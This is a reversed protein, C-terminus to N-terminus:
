DDQGHDTYGGERAWLVTYKRPREVALTGIWRVHPAGDSPLIEFRGALPPEVVPRRAEDILLANAFRTTRLAVLALATQEYMDQSAPWIMRTMPSQKMILEEFADIEIMAQELPLSFMADLEADLKEMEVVPTLFLDDLKAALEWSMEDGASSGLGLEGVVELLHERAGQLDRTHRNELELFCPEIRELIRDIRLRQEVSFAHSEGKGFVGHLGGASACLWLGGSYALYDGMLILDCGAQSYAAFLDIAEDGTGDSTWARGLDLWLLRMEMVGQFMDDMVFPEALDEVRFSANKRSAGKRLSAVINRMAKTAQFDNVEEDTLPPEGAYGLDHIFLREFKAGEEYNAEALQTLSRFAVIYDDLRNGELTPTEVLIQPLVEVEERTQLELREAAAIM